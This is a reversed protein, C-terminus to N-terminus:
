RPLWQSLAPMYRLLKRWDDQTPEKVRTCLGAIATQTDPRARKCLFLGKAVFTHFTDHADSGLTPSEPQAFLDAEAPTPSVDDKTLHIPFDDLMNAVYDKMHIKVTGPISFDFTMGLYDHVKGRTCSVIGYHGYKENLWKDFRDNIKPNVHSAMLDDVHFRVTHQKSHITKNAVCPDYPNFVYGETELDGRFKKYWLLAAVLMGYLAKMLQLYIVRKGKELMVFPGYLEPTIKVLLDVLVGTIKMIARAEGDKLPDLDAQIFANPIDATMVDREKHADIVATLFIAEQSVMPSATDERDFYARTKSGDYVCQGKVTKNRKEAIFMM